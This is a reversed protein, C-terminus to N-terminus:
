LPANAYKGDTFCVQKPRGGAMKQLHMVAPKYKTKIKLGPKGSTSHFLYHSSSWSSFIPGHMELWVKLEYAYGSRRCTDTGVSVGVAVQPLLEEVSQQVHRVAARQRAQPAEAAFQRGDQLLVVAAFQGRELAAQHNQQQLAVTCHPSSFAQSLGWNLKFFLIFNFTRRSLIKRFPILAVHSFTKQTSLNFDSNQSARIRKQLIQVYFFTIINVQKKFKM